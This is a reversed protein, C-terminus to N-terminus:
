ATPRPRFLRDDYDPFIYPMNWRFAEVEISHQKGPCLTQIWYWHGRAALLRELYEDFTYGTDHVEQGFSHYAVTDGPTEGPPQLLAACSEPVFMDFPKVGRFRQDGQSSFWTVGGWDGFVEHM